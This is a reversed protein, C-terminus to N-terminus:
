NEHNNKRSLFYEREIRDSEAEYEALEADIIEKNAFYYTLAALVQTLSLHDLQEAIEEVSSGMNYRVSIRHVSTATGAVCAWGNRIKPDCAILEGIDKAAAKATATAM